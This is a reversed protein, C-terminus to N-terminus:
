TWWRSGPSRSARSWGGRYRFMWSSRSRASMRCMGTRRAKRPVPEQRHEDVVAIMPVEVLREVQVMVPVAVFRQNTHVQPVEVTRRVKRRLPVQVVGDVYEVTRM